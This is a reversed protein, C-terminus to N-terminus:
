SLQKEKKTSGGKDFLEFISFYSYYMSCIFLESKDYPNTKMEVSKTQQPKLKVHLVM